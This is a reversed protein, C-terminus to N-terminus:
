SVLLAYRKAEELNTDNGGCAIIVVKGTQPRNFQLNINNADIIQVLDAIIQSESADYISIAVNLTGLNHNFTMATVDTFSVVHCLVSAVGGVSVIGGIGVM